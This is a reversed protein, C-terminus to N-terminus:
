AAGRVPPCCAPRTPWTAPLASRKYAPLMASAPMERSDAWAAPLACALALLATSRRVTRVFRTRALTTATRNM